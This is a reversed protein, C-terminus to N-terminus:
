GLAPLELKEAQGHEPSAAGHLDTGPALNRKASAGEIAEGLIDMARDIQDPQTTAPPVFRLVSGSRRIRYILGHDFCYQGIGRGEETAPEKTHRSRVLEVDM